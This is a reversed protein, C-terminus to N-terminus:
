PMRVRRSAQESSRGGLLEAHSHTQPQTLSCHWQLILLQEVTKIGAINRYNPRSFFTGRVGVGRPDPRAPLNPPPADINIQNTVYPKAHPQTRIRANQASHPVISRHKSKCNNDPQTFTSLKFAIQEPPHGHTPSELPSPHILQEFRPNLYVHVISAFM